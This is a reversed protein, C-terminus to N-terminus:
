NVPVIPFNWKSDTALIDEPTGTLFVDYIDSTIPSGFMTGEVRVFSRKKVKDHLTRSTVDIRRSEDVIHDVQTNANAWGEYFEDPVGILVSEKRGSFTTARQYFAGSKPKVLVIVEPVGNERAYAALASIIKRPDTGEVLGIRSIGGIEVIERGFYASAFKSVRGEKGILSISADIVSSTCEGFTLTLTKGEAIDTSKLGYLAQVTQEENIRRKLLKQAKDSLSSPLDEKGLLQNWNVEGSDLMNLVTKDGTDPVVTSMISDIKSIGQNKNVFAQAANREATTRAAVVKVNEPFYNHPFQPDIINKFSVTDKNHVLVGNAFFNLNNFNFDSDSVIDEVSTVRAKRGDDLYFVDGVNFNESSGISGIKEDNDNNLVINGSDSAQAYVLIILSLVLLALFILGRKRM